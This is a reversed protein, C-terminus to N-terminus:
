WPGQKGGFWWILGVLATSQARAPRTPDATPFFAASSWDRRFEGRMQFGRTVDFTATVTTDKLSQRAGTFLGGADNFYAFRGALSFRPTFRYRAYGAGGAVLRPASEPHTRTVAYDAQAALTWRETARWTFYADLIHSRGRPAVGMVAPQERGNFYNLTASFSPSSNYRLAVVQGRFTNFDETQNLGNVLWYSANLRGTLPYTARLGMHYFPLFNFWFSRSYNFQDKTYNNEIGFGSAWKGFDATLGKGVPAVYTGYAQFVHRVVAPRPENAPSGQLTETAQGFMLDLRTGFRRGAAADPAREIVVGTQNVAFADGSVDYARLLNAATYPRNFNFAYYGDFTVNVTTGAPFAGAPPEPASAVPEPAM